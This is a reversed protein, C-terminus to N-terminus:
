RLQALPRPGRWFRLLDGRGLEWVVCEPPGALRAGVLMLGACAGRRLAALAPALWDRELALLAEGWALADFARAPAALMDVQALVRGRAPRFCEPVARRPTGAHRCLGAIAPDDSWVETYAVRVPEALCGQGWPWLSNVTPRGTEARRRNVPHAHLTTQAAAIMRQWAPGDAGGPLRPDVPQRIAAPLAQTALDLPRQLRMEWRGPSSASLEGWGAFLPRVLDLLAASEQPDLDLAAPDDLMVGEPAVRWHVPDLCLWAGPATGDAGVKRLAAAPLHTGGCAGPLGDGVWAGRRARGLLRSLVPAELGHVAGALIEAPLLLGPVLLTLHM